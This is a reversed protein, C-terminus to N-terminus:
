TLRPMSKAAQPIIIVYESQYVSSHVSAPIRIQHVTAKLHSM